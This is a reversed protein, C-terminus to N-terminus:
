VLWLKRQPASLGSRPRRLLSYRASLMANLEDVMKSAQDWTGRGRKYQPIADFEAM